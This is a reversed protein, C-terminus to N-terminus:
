CFCLRQDAARKWAASRHRQKQMHFLYPEERHLECRFIQIGFMKETFVRLNLHLFEVM